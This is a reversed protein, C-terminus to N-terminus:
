GLKFRDNKYKQIANRFQDLQHDTTTEQAQLSAVKGELTEIKKMRARRENEYDDRSSNVYM